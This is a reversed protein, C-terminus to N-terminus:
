KKDRRYLDMTKYGEALVVEMELLRKEQTEKRKASYVYRAWDKQYGFTLQEYINLLDDNKSLYQKIDEVNAIYDDVCQSPKASGKKAKKPAPRLGIVTFDDNLSVMRAFKIDSGLAYGEENVQLAPFISDREIYEKYKKNGKKPYAFYLYGKDTLLQKDIISQLQEKLEDLQFVFTFILDYKENKISVDYELENFDNIEEPTQIILKAPYKQLNLKEIITKTPM